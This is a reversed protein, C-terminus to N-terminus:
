PRLVYGVGRVTHILKHAFGRDVKARLRSVLVDVVNTQPDFHYDYVHELISTRSIVRGPTRMLLELLAFERPQLEIAREGRRVERTLLDVHLEGATLTTPEVTRTARRILAEIRALIESFSFPKVVYDDGGARLGRIRDDVTHNASLILVPTDIKEARWREIMTLGDMGPLMVDVIAADHESSQGMAFGDTGNDALDVAYGAERLGGAVFSGIKEDDEVVLIRM